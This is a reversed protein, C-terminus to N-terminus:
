SNLEERYRKLELYIIQRSVGSNDALEQQTVGQEKWQKYWLERRIKGFSAIQDQLFEMAKTLHEGNNLDLDPILDYKDEVITLAM